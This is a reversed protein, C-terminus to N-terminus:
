GHYSLVRFRFLVDVDGSALLDVDGGGAGQGVGGGWLLAMGAPARAEVPKVVSPEELALLTAFRTTLPM